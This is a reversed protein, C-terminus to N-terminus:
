QNAPLTIAAPSAETNQADPKPLFSEVSANLLPEVQYKAIEFVADEGFRKVFFKDEHTYFALNANSLDSTINAVLSPNQIVIEQVADESVLSNIVLDNFRKVWRKIAEQDLEKGEPSPSLSWEPGDEGSIGSLSFADTKINTINGDVKLVTKELWSEPKAPLDYQALTLVYIDNSGEVRAHLKKYSPSTGLYLSALKEGQQFFQLTKQANDSHVEFRKAASTSTASPWSVKQEAISSLVDEIKDQMAPMNGYEPMIWKGDVKKLLTREGENDLLVLEDVNEIDASLLSQTSKNGASHSSAFNLSIIVVLQVVLLGALIKIVKNM